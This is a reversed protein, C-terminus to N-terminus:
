VDGEGHVHYSLERAAVRGKIDTGTPQWGCVNVEPPWVTRSEGPVFFEVFVMDTDTDNFFSHLENEFNYLFDGTNLAIEDGALVATGAGSVIFQFHEAGEHHHAAGSAGSPYMIMEGKVAETGWLGTSALYIRQRTDHESNLVPETSWDIRRVTNLPLAPDYDIAHPVRCVLVTADANTSLEASAGRALMTVIFRDTPQGDLTTEGDLVQLWALEDGSTPVLYRTGTTMSLIEVSLRGDALRNPPLIWERSIGPALFDAVREDARVIFPM